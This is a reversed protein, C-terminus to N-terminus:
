KWLAQNFCSGYQPRSFVGSDREQAYVEQGLDQNHVPCSDFQNFGGDYFQPVSPLSFREFQQNQCEYKAREIEVNFNVGHVSPLNNVLTQFDNIEQITRCQFQIQEQIMMQLYKHLPVRQTNLYRKQKYILLQRIFIVPIGNLEM